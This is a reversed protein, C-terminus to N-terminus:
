IDLLSLLGEISTSYLPTLDDSAVVKFIPSRDVWVGVDEKQATKGNDLKYEEEVEENEMEVEEEEEEYMEMEKEEEEEEEEEEKEKEEEMKTQQHDDGVNTEEMERLKEELNPTITSYNNLFSNGDDLMFNCSKIFDLPSKEEKSKHYRSKKKAPKKSKKKKKLVKKKKRRTKITRQKKSKPVVRPSHKGEEIQFTLLVRQFPQKWSWFIRTSKFGIPFILSDNYSGIYFPKIQGFSLITLAGVRMKPYTEKSFPNVLSFKYSVDKRHLPHDFQPMPVISPYRHCCRVSYKQPIFTCKKEIACRMHYNKKCGVCSLFGGKENCHYCDFTSDEEVIRLTCNDSKLKCNNSYLMCATHAFTLTEPVPILRGFM